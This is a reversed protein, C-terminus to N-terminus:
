AGLGTASRSIQPQPRDGAPIATSHQQQSASAVRNVGHSNLREAIQQQNQRDQSQQDPQNLRGLAGRTQAPLKKIAEELEKAADKKHQPEAKERGEKVTKLSNDIVKDPDIPPLKNLARFKGLEVSAKIPDLAQIEDLEDLKEPNNKYKERLSKMESSFLNKDQLYVSDAQRKAEKVIDTKLGDDVSQIVKSLTKADNNELATRLQQHKKEGLNDFNTVTRESFIKRKLEEDSGLLIKASNQLLEGDMYAQRTGKNKKDHLAEEGEANINAKLNLGVDARQGLSLKDINKDLFSELQEVRKRGYPSDELFSKFKRDEEVSLKHAQEAKLEVQVLIETRSKKKEEDIALDPDSQYKLLDNQLAARDKGYEFGGPLSDLMRQLNFFGSLRSFSLGSNGFSEVM